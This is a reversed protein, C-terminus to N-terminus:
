EHLIWECARDRPSTWHLHPLRETKIMDPLPAWGGSEDLKKALCNNVGVTYARPLNQNARHCQVFALSGGKLGSFCKM